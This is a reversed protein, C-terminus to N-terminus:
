AKSPRTRLCTVPSIKLRRRTSFFTVPLNVALEINGHETVFQHWDKVARGIVFESLASFHPDASDPIFRAPPVIGWTPHRMRVLAEAGSLTLSRVEIKPQYWLELWDAHLAEAVDVPPRPPAEVPRLIAVRERLDTDKFPTPLLPLMALGLKEGIALMATAMLSASPGFVLVRGEYGAQSLAELMANSAFGGASLGLVFLDPLQDAILARLNNPQECECTIFGLDELAERLFNRIHPKSDAVCARPTVKRRGFTAAIGDEERLGQLKM